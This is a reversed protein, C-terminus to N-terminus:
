PAIEDARRVETLRVLPIRRDTQKQYEGYSPRDTVLASWVESYDTGSLSEARMWWLGGQVRVLLEPNAARDSLNLYWAPHREAGAFSAVLIRHGGSDRWFPLAVKHERGSRRGITRLLVHEMGVWIWTSDADSHEMM